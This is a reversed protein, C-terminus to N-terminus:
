GSKGCVFAFLTSTVGLLLLLRAAFALRADRRFFEAAELAVAVMLLVIPFQILIPHLYGMWRGLEM